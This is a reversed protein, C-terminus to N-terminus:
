SGSTLVGSSIVAPATRSWRVRVLRRSVGGQTWPSQGGLTAALLVVIAWRQHFGLGLPVDQVAATSKLGVGFMYLLVMHNHPAGRRAGGAALRAGRCAVTVRLASGRADRPQAFRWVILAKWGCRARPSPRSAPLGPSLARDQGTPAWRRRALIGGLPCRWRTGCPRNASTSTAAAAWPGPPKWAKPATSPKDAPMYAPRMASAAVRGRTQAVSCPSSNLATDGLGADSAAWEPGHGNRPPRRDQPIPRAPSALTVVQYTQHEKADSQLGGSLNSFDRRSEPGPGGPSHAERRRGKRSPEDSRCAQAGM